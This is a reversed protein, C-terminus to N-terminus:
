YDYNEEPIHPFQLRMESDHALISDVFSDASNSTVGSSCKTMFNEDCSVIHELIEEESASVSGYNLALYESEPIQDDTNTYPIEM